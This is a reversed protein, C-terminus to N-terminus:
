FLNRVHQVSSPNPGRCMPSQTWPRHIGIYADGVLCKRCRLGYPRESHPWSSTWGAIRRRKYAELLRPITCGPLTNSPSVVWSNETVHVGEAAQQLGALIITAASAPFSKVFKFMVVGGMNQLVAVEHVWYEVSLAHPDKRNRGPLSQM